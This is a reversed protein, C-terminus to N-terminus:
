CPRELSIFIKKGPFGLNNDQYFYGPEIEPPEYKCNILLVGGNSNKNSDSNSLNLGFVSSLTSGGGGGPSGGGGVGSGSGKTFDATIPRYNKLRM